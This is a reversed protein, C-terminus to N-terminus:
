LCWPFKIKVVGLGEKVKIAVAIREKAAAIINKKLAIMEKYYKLDGIIEIWHEYVNIEGEKEEIIRKSDREVECAMRAANGKWMNKFGEVDYNYPCHEKEIEWLRFYDTQKLIELISDSNSPNDKIYGEIQNLCVIDEKPYKKNLLELSKKIAKHQVETVDYSNAFDIDEQTAEILTNPVDKLKKSKLIDEPTCLEYEEVIDIGVYDYCQAVYRACMQRNENPIVEQGRRMAILAEIDYYTGVFSRAYGIMIQIALWDWFGDKLRLVCVSEDEKFLMRSPNATIVIDSAHLISGYWYLMAHSYKSNTRQQVERSNKDNRGTLIIDGPLLSQVNLKYLM